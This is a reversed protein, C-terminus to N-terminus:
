GSISALHGKAVIRRRILEIPVGQNFLPQQWAPDGYHHLAALEWDMTFCPSGSAGPDTNTKYRIRTQNPNRGIVADTDLALKMPSGDPHQVILLPAGAELPVAAEPLSIWGRPGGEVANRGAPEALRLLAYDLEDETPPPDDPKKTKEAPSYRSFDLCADAHLPVATGQQRTGDSLRLYDFRCALDALRNSQKASEVVHWNTLVADPGVLFGSGAANGAFEVRCVRREIQALKELWVRVDLKALHPRVNRQFGPAFADTPADKQPEGAQQVALGAGGGPRPQAAEPCIGAIAARVDARHPYREYVAALFVCVTGFGGLAILLEEITKRLPKGPAVYEVYLQDGTSSYVITTLQFENLASGLLKSLKEVDAGSLTTM